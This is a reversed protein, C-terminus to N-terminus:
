RRVRAAAMHELAAHLTQRAVGPRRAIVTKPVGAAIDTAAADVQEATLRRAQARGINVGRAKAAAIGRV